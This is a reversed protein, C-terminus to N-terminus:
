FKSCFMVVAFNLSTSISFRFGYRLFNHFFGCFFFKFSISIYSFTYILFKWVSFCNIGLALPWHSLKRRTIVRTIAAPPPTYMYHPHATLASRSSIFIIFCAAAHLVRHASLSLLLDASKTLYLLSICSCRM